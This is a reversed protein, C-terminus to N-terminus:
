AWISSAHGDSFVEPPDPYSRAIGSAYRRASWAAVAADLVDDVAAEEGAEGLDEPIVIGEAALLARRLSAGAWSKKGYPLHTGALTAFSVEPHVEIVRTATSRVWEDVEFLRPRLAYAQRSVGNGTLERSRRAAAAYTTERLAERVPVLFVSQWRPGVVTRALVDAARRGSDPLGIPMDVAVVTLEAARAVLTAVDTAYAGSVAGDDGLVIGIWGSRCADVGLVAM